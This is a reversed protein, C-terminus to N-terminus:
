PLLVESVLVKDEDEDRLDQRRIDSARVTTTMVNVRMAGSTSAVCEKAAPVVVRAVPVSRALTVIAGPAVAVDVLAKVKWVADPVSTMVASVILTDLAEAVLM